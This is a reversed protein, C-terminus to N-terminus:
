KAIKKLFPMYRLLALIGFFQVIMTVSSSLLRMLLTQTYSLGVLDMLIFSMVGLSLVLTNLLVCVITKLINKKNILESKYFFLGFSFGYLFEVLTIQPMFAGSGPNLFYSLFDALAGCLGGMLPGFLASCVFVPIFKFSIKIGAGIRISLAGLVFSVAVLMAVTCIKHTNFKTKM